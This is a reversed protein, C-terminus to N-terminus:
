RLRKPANLLPVVLFWGENDKAIYRIISTSSSEGTKYYVELQHTPKVAWRVLGAFPLKGDKLKYVAIGYKEPIIRQFDREMTENMIQKQTDSLGALCGPNILDRHKERDKANLVSVFREALDEPTKIEEAFSTTARPFLKVLKEDDRLFVSEDKATVTIVMVTKDGEKVFKAPYTVKPKKQISSRVFTLEIGTKTTKANAGPCFYLSEVEVTFTIEVEGEKDSKIEKFTLDKEGYTDDDAARASSNATFTIVVAVALAALTFPNRAM